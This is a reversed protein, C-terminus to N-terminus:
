GRLIPLGAALRSHPFTMVRESPRGRKGHSSFFTRFPLRAVTRYAEMRFSAVGEKGGRQLPLSPPTSGGTWPARLPVMRTM